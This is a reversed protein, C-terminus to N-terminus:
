PADAILKRFTCAVDQPRSGPELRYAPVSEVARKMKHLADQAMGSLQLITSPALAMLAEKASAPALSMRGGAVRRPLIIAKLAAESQTPVGPHLMLLFKEDAQRRDANVVFPELHRLMGLSHDTLKASSFLSHVRPLAGEEFGTMLCYDEGLLRLNASVCALATTTKGVGGRGVLVVSGADTGVAAAHILIGGRWTFWAQLIERLPAADEYAPLKRSDSIWWYARRERRSVISLIGCYLDYAVCYDSSNAGTVERRSSFRDLTWPMTPAGIGTSAGDWISIRLDAEGDNTQPDVLRHSLAPLIRDVLALGAFELRLRQGALCIDHEVAGVRNIAKQFRGGVHGFLTATEEAPDHM